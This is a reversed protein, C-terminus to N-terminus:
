NFSLESVHGSTHTQEVCSFPIQHTRIITDEKHRTSSMGKPGLPRPIFRVCFPVIPDVLNKYNQSDPGMEWCVSQSIYRAVCSAIRFDICSYSSIVSCYAVSSKIIQRKSTIIQRKKKSPPLPPPPLSLYGLYNKSESVKWNTSNQYNFLIQTINVAYTCKLRPFYNINFSYNPASM